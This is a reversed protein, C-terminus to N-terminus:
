YRAAMELIEKYEDSSIYPKVKLNDSGKGPSIYKVGLLKLSDDVRGYLFREGKWYELPRMKIRKSRRVGNDFSTGAEALSKRMPHAKRIRKEGAERKGRQLKTQHVEPQLEPDIQQGSSPDDMAEDELLSPNSQDPLLSSSHLTYFIDNLNRTKEINNGPEENPRSDADANQMTVNVNEDVFQQPLSDANGIVKRADMNPERIDVEVHSELESTIGLDKPAYVQDHLKDMPGIPSANGVTSLDVRSELESSTGLDKPADIQEHLKDMQLNPSTNRAASIDVEVRSEFASATGLDKPADVQEHLKQMTRIPSANRRASFGVNVPSFPDKLPNSQLIKKKLLSLSAFPSRPPTPSSVQNVPNAVQEHEMPPKRKLSKLVSDIILSSKRSKGIDHLEPIFLNERDLPKIQLREQLLNLAGDGDLDENNFSLLEELIDSVENETKKTSVALEVEELDIDPNHDPTSLKEQSNDKIERPIDQEVTEQSLMLIDDNESPKSSYRHKSKYSKGLIGPRRQRRANTLPKYLNFTDVSGGLQKQIEKKANEIRDNANFFDDPDPLQDINLAPELSVSPQSVSTKLSFQARKRNRGLDLGPRREQPRDKGKAAVADTIGVNEAFSAFNSELFEAGGDVIRKAENMLKEPSRVELSQMYIHISKLDKFEAPVPADASARITRPFLSPGNLGSLPDASESVLTDGAM